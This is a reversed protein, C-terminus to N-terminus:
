MAFGEQHHNLLCPIRNLPLPPSVPVISIRKLCLTWRRIWPLGGGGGGEGDRLHVGSTDNSWRM